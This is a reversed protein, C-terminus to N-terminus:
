QASQTKGGGKLSLRLNLSISDDEDYLFEFSEAESLLTPKPNGTTIMPFFVYGAKKALIQDDPLPNGNEGKFDTSLKFPSVDSKGEVVLQLTFVYNDGQKECKFSSTSKANLITGANYFLKDKLAM